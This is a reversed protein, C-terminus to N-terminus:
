YKIKNIEHRLKEIPIHTYVDLTIDKVAHGLLLKTCLNDVNCLNCMTAFTHRTEHVTHNYKKKFMTRLTVMVIKKNKNTFLYTSNNKKYHKNIIPLIKEHIPIYRISSKTKSKSVYLTKNKKNYDSKKMNVLESIRLGTYLLVIAIEDYINKDANLKSVEKSTFINKTYKKKYKDLKLYKGYNKDLFDNAIAYDLMQVLLKRFARQNSNSLKDCHKQYDILKLCNIPKNHIKVSKRYALDYYLKTNESLNKFHIKSWKSYLDSFTILKANSSNNSIDNVYTYLCYEAEERTRFTGLHKYKQKKNLDYGITIIAQYPKKRNGNLKRISGYGKSRKM